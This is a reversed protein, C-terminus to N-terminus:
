LINRSGLESALPLVNMIDNYLKQKKEILDIYAKYNDKMKDDQYSSSLDISHTDKRQQLISYVYDAYDKEPGKPLHCLIGELQTSIYIERDTFNGGIRQLASYLDWPNILPLYVIFELLTSIKMNFVKPPYYSKLMEYKYLKESLDAYDYDNEDSDAECENENNFGGFFDTMDINLADALLALTQIRVNCDGNEISSIQSQSVGSEEALQGQTLGAGQRLRKLVFPLLSIDNM